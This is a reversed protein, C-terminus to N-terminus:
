KLMKLVVVAIKITLKQKFKFLASNGPAHFNPIGGADSLAPEDWYYQWLSGSTKLNDSYEILNYIAMVVDIEKTNDTWINNIESICDTFSVCNKFVVKENGNNSNNEAQGKISITQKVLIYADSYNCSSSKLM